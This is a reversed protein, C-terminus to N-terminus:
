EGSRYALDGCQAGRGRFYYQRLRLFKVVIPQYYCLKNYMQMRLSPAVVIDLNCVGGV